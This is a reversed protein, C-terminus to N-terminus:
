DKEGKKKRSLVIWYAATIGIVTLAEALILQHNYALDLMRPLIDTEEDYLFVATHTKTLFLVPLTGALLLGIAIAFALPCLKVYLQYNNIFSGLAVLFLAFLLLTKVVLFGTIAFQSPSLLREIQAACAMTNKIAFELILGILFTLTATHCFLFFRNSEIQKIQELICVLLITQVGVTLWHPQNGLFVEKLCLLPHGQLFLEKIREIGFSLPAFVIEVVSGPGTSYFVAKVTDWKNSSGYLILCLLLFEIPLLLRLLRRATKKEPVLPLRKLQKTFWEEIQETILGPLKLIKLLMGNGLCSILSELVWILM